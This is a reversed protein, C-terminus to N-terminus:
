PDMHGFLYVKTKFYDRNPYKPALTYRNPYMSGQPFNNLRNGRLDKRFKLNVYYPHKEPTRLSTGLTVWHMEALFLSSALSSPRCNGVAAEKSLRGM